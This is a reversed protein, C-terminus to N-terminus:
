EEVRGQLHNYDKLITELFAIHEMSSQYGLKKEVKRRTKLVLLPANDAFKNESLKLVERIIGAEQDTLLAADPFVPSYITEVEEFITEAFTIDKPVRVVTTGAAMDGMRQGKRNFLMTLLTLSGQSAYNEVFGLLWRLLFNGLTPERGDLRVVKIRVIKKGFTQGGLFYETLLPYLVPPLLFLIIMWRPPDGIGRFMATFIGLLYIIQILYDIIFAGIREGVSAAKYHISINQTTRINLDSM